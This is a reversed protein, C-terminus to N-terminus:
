SRSTAVLLYAMCLLRAKNDLVGRRAGPTEPPREPGLSPAVLGLDVDVFDSTYSIWSLGGSGNSLVGTM